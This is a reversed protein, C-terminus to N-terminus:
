NKEMLGEGEQGNMMDQKLEHVSIWTQAEKGM